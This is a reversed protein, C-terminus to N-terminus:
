PTINQILEKVKLEIQNRIVRVENISRGKPDPISWEFCDKVFLAPCSEKDVCGMNVAISNELMENSLSKPQSEDINIGVDDMVKAVLPNIFSSPKTGASSVIYKESAYKKFFAEAMQSRGANEVCVFVIKKM